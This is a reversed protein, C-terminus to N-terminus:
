DEEVSSYTPKMMGAYKFWGVVSDFDNDAEEKTGTSVQKCM